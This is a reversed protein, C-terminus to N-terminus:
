TDCRYMGSSMAARLPNLGGHGHWLSKPVTAEAFAFPAAYGRHTPAARHLWRQIARMGARLSLQQEVMSHGCPCPEVGM